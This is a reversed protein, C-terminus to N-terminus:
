DSQAAPLTIIFSTGEGPVSSVEVLGDHDQVIKKCISLGLGTGNEKTTYFPNFIQKLDYERIGEGSDRVEMVAAHRAKALKLTVTGSGKAAMAELANNVINVFVQVMKDMDMRVCVDPSHEKYEIRLGMGNAKSETLSVVKQLCEHVPHVLFTSPHPKSFQLFESTLNNMRGIEGLILEFWPEINYRRSKSLQLFGQIIALPNRIEHAFGAALEGIVRMKENEFMMEERKKEEKLANRQREMEIIYQIILVVALSTLFDSGSALLSYTDLPSYSVRVITYLLSFGFGLLAAKVVGQIHHFLVKSLLIIYLTFCWNVQSVWHFLVLLFVQAASLRALRDPYMKELFISATFVIGLLILLLGNLFKDLQFSSVIVFGVYLPLVVHYMLRFFM